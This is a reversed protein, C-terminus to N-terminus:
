FQTLSANYEERMGKEKLLLMVNLGEGGGIGWRIEEEVLFIINKEVCM